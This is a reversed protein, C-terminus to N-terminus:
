KEFNIKIFLKVNPDKSLSFFFFDINLFSILLYLIKWSENVIIEM